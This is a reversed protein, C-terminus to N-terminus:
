RNIGSECQTLTNANSLHCDSESGASATVLGAATPDFAALIFFFRKHMQSLQM